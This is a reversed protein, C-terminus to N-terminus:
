EDEVQRRGSRGTRIRYVAFITLIFMVPLVVDSFEPIREFIVEINATTNQTWQMCIYSEGPVSYVSTLHNKIYDNAPLSVFSWAGSVNKKVIVYDKSGSQHQLWMAYVNGTNNDLSITPCSRAYDNTANLKISSSWGSGTNYTYEIHGEWNAGNMDGTGYVVHVVGNADVVASPPASNTNEPSDGASYLTTATADWGDGDHARAFVEGAVAYVAWVDIGSGIKGPVVVAKYGDASGSGPLLAGEDDWNSLDDPSTSRRTELNFKDSPNDSDLSISVIWLYGTANKCIFADKNGMSLDSIAHTTESGWTIDPTSPSVVGRRIHVNQTSDDTDGVIYVLNNTEDYWLSTKYVGSSAFAQNASSWTGGGDSSSKYVTDTGDWYFSWFNTGDYFLKRQHSAATAWDSTSSSDIVWGRTEAVLAFASTAGDYMALDSRDLWDTTEVIFDVTAAGALAASPLGIEIRQLDKGIDISTVIETWTGDYEYLKPPLVDGFQGIIEVLHDAGIAGTASSLPYGTVASLDSDIYIRLYDEGTKRPPTVPTGGGTGTPKGKLAPVYTGSCLEGEVSVYFFASQTDNASAIEDIDINMNEAPITDIDAVTLGSWDAFAGDIEIGDPTTNVYGRAGYGIIEASAFSWECDDIALSISYFDGSDNASVDANVQLTYPAEDPSISFGDGLPPSFTVGPTTLALSDITGGEGQCSLKLSLIPVDAANPLIGSAPVLSIQEVILLGGKAPTEYSITRHELENQSMLLYKASTGLDAPLIAKAEIRDGEIRHSLSGIQAWSNWDRDDDGSSYSMLSSSHVSGDWGDLELLYDAGMSGVSYGTSSSDDSDVFLFFSDVVSSSMIDGTTKVYLFLDNSDSQASWEEIDITPASVASVRVGFTDIDSWESFDGDINFAGSKAYYAFYIFTPLIILVAVLVALFPWRTLASFRQSRPRRMEADGRTDNAMGTGNVMGNGNVLGTGNVAGTGNVMGREAMRSEIPGATIVEAPPPPEELDEERMPGPAETEPEPPPVLLPEEAEHKEVEFGAGCKPCKAAGSAILDGCEPCEFMDEDTVVPVGCRPCKGMGTELDMGCSPCSLTADPLGVAPTDAAKFDEKAQKSQLRQMLRKEIVKDMERKTLVTELRTSCFPCRESDASVKNGCLPCYLSETKM